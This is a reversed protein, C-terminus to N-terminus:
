QALVTKPSRHFQLITIKMKWNVFRFSFTNKVNQDGSFIFESEAVQYLMDLHWSDSIIFYTTVISFFIYEVMHYQLIVKYVAGFGGQGLKNTDSFNETAVTITRFDFQLSEVNSTEHVDECSFGTLVDSIRFRILANSLSSLHM